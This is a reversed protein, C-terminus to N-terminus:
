ARTRRNRLLRPLLLGAAGALLGAVLVGLLLYRVSGVETEATRAVPATTGPALVVPTHVPTPSPAPPAAPANDVPPVAKPGAPPAPLAPAEDAPPLDIRSSPGSSGAKEPVGAQKEVVDAVLKLQTRMRDPLPAYGAPLQGLAVGHEQGSTAAYRLLDAYSKGASTTLASPVTAAFTTVTLPYGDTVPVGPPIVAVRLPDAPMTANAMTLLAQETPAVFQGAGNRLRATSLGYRAAQATTALAMMSRLGQAQPADKKMAPPISDAGWASKGTTEGRSAFRAADGMSAVYPHSEMNCWEPRGVEADFQQCYADQKPYNSRPYTTGLKTFSLNIRDKWKPHVEGKLFAAAEPDGLLWTWVLFSADSSGMPLLLDPVRAGFFDKFQPNIELFEPDSLLDLPNGEPINPDGPNAAYQYSQTLLKAVLRPTLQMDQMRQGERKRVDEPARISSQSEIDFAITLGSLAIPAYVPTRGPTQEAPDLLLGLFDLGPNDGLLRERANDDSGPTYNFIGGAQRCLVPQWRAMAEAILESGETPIEASGIPCSVGVREFELPVVMRKAWNTTSLPTSQLRGSGGTPVKGDVDIQGRPVIVLWCKRLVADPDPDTTQGCGLGPAEMGTQMEFFIQGTGDARTPAFPVENTTQANFFRNTDGSDTEGSVSRFPAYVNVNPTTQKIPEAPDVLAGFNLQRGAVYDGTAIRTDGKTAGYQCQERDPGTDADGWCQMIQLYDRGFSMPSPWTQKGGKWTIEVVQNVLHGTQPVTVELGTFEGTGKVTVPKPDTTAPGAKLARVGSGSRAPSAAKATPKVAGTGPVQAPRSAQVDIGVPAGAIPDVPIEPRAQDGAAVPVPTDGPGASLAAGASTALLLVLVGATRLARRAGSNVTRRSM